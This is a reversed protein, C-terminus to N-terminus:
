TRDLGALGHGMSSRRTGGESTGPSRGDGVCGNGVLGAAKSRCPTVTSSEPDCGLNPGHRDFRFCEPDPWAAM